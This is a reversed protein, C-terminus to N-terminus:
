GLKGIIWERNENILFPAVGIVNAVRDVVLAVRAARAGWIAATRVETATVARGGAVAGGGIGMTAAFASVEIIKGTTSEIARNSYDILVLAPMSEVKVPGGKAYDKIGVIENPNFEVGESGFVNPLKEGRGQVDIHPPGRRPVLRSRM